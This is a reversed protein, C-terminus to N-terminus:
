IVLPTLVTAETNQAVKGLLQGFTADFTAVNVFLMQKKQIQIYIIAVFLVFIVSINISQIIM